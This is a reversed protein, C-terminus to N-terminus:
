SVRTMLAFWRDGCQPCDYLVYFENWPFRLPKEGLEDAAFDWSTPRLWGCRCRKPEAKALEPPLKRKLLKRSAKM